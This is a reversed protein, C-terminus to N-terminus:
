AVVRVLVAAKESPGITAVCGSDFALSDAAVGDSFLAGSEPMLSEVVLPAGPEVIGASLGIGTSRSEFPERVVFVLRRDEWGLRLRPLAPASPSLLLRAVSEAMNQASSLWGTSGAGTSVLIGSSAQRETVGRWSLAYRASVHDKRGVLFDNFALLRQGDNLRAEALTVRVQPARGELVSVVGSAATTPAFPLLVGDWRAPDPNVGIIPQDATYKATNAVLGDRGLTVVLDHPTFLFSPVLERDVAQFKPTLGGLGRQIEDLARHYATHERDYDAFDAGMHEIWFKAQARTNFRAQLEELRTKQTVLVIKEIV